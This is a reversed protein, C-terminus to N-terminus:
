ASPDLLHTNITNAYYDTGAPHSFLIARRGTSKKVGSIIASFVARLKWSLGPLGAVGLQGRLRPVSLCRSLLYPRSMTWLGSNAQGSRTFLSPVRNRNWPLQMPNPLCLFSSGEAVFQIQIRIFQDTIYSWFTFKQPWPFSLICSLCLISWPYIFVLIRIFGWLCFLYKSVLTLFIFSM